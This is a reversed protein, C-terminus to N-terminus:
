SSPQDNAPFRFQDAYYLQIGNTQLAASSKQILELDERKEVVRRIIISKISRGFKEVMSLYISLDHQTNDGMLVFKKEPFLLFLEELTTSKHINKPPFKINLLVHKLKRLQKLFLPGAPFKNHLLFRYIIPHLNQESNSLYFVEADSAVLGAIVSQMSEVARRKEVTTFMLTRFKLVRRYIFSHMLTDDIDSVVITDSEVKHIQHPYLDDLLKVEQGGSLVVKLLKQGSLDDEIKEYFAGHMNTSLKVERDHLVLVINESAYPRTRYLSVLTRFTKRRNFEKFTLDSLRTYTLQGFLLTHKGNSLGYFSLLIPLRTTM